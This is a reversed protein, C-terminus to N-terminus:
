RSVTTGSELGSGDTECGDSEGDLESGDSESGKGSGDSESGTESGDSERDTSSEAYSNSGSSNSYPSSAREPSPAQNPVSESGASMLDLSDAALRALHNSQTRPQSGGTGNRLASRLRGPSSGLM